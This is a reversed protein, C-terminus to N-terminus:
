IETKLPTSHVFVALLVNAAHIPKGCHIMTENYGGPGMVSEYLNM